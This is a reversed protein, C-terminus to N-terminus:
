LILPEDSHMWQDFDEPTRWDLHLGLRANFEILSQFATSDDGAALHHEIDDLVPLVQNALHQAHLETTLEVMRRQEEICAIADYIWLELAQLEKEALRAEKAAAAAIKLGEQVMAAAVYGLAGGVLQGAVPVPILAQGAFGFAWMSTNRIVAAGSRRSFEDATCQGNAFAYGATAVEIATNAMAVPGLTESFGIFHEPIRAAARIVQSFASVSGARVATTGATRAIDIVDRAPTSTGDRDIAVQLSAAVLGFAGGAVSAFGTMAALEQLEASWANSALEDLLSNRPGTALEQLEERTTGGSSIGGHALEGRLQADVEEYRSFAIGDPNKGLEEQLRTRYVSEQDSPVLRQMGAYKDSSLVRIADQEDGYVKAQVQRLVESGSLIEIDAPDGPRGDAATMRASLPSNAGAANVNFRTSELFEFYAGARQEPTRNANRDILRQALEGHDDRLWERTQRALDATQERAYVFGTLSGGARRLNEQPAQESIM